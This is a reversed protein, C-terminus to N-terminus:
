LLITQDGNKLRVDYKKTKVPIREKQFNQYKKIKGLLNVIKERSLYISQNLIKKLKIFDKKYDITVSVLHESRHIKKIKIKFFNFTHRVFYYTLYESSNKDFALKSAKKLAKFSIIEPKMGNPISQTFTFDSKNKIHKAALKILTPADTLPNDGTIRAFHDFKFKKQCGIIRKFINKDSGAYFNIKYLKIINKFFINNQKNSTCIIIQNSKFYKLLRLILIEILSLGNIKLKAKNKLRSSSLRVIILIKINNKELINKKLSNM